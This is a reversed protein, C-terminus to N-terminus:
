MLGLLQKIINIIYNKYYKEQLKNIYNNLLIFVAFSILILFFTKIGVSSFLYIDLVRLIQTHFIYVAFTAHSIRSVLDERLSFINKQIALSDFLM